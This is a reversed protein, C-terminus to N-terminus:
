VVVKDRTTFRDGGNPSIVTISQASLQTIIGFGVIMVSLLIYSNKKNM